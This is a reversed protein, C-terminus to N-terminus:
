QVMNLYDNLVRSARTADRTADELAEILERKARGELSYFNLEPNNFDKLAKAASKLRETAREIDSRLAESTFKVENQITVENM